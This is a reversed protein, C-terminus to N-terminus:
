KSEIVLKVTREVGLAWENAGGIGTLGIQLPRPLQSTDLVWEFEVYYRSDIDVQSADAIRWGTSRAVADLAEALSAYSQGLGGQSVRWAATLPQYSLRWERVARAVREDRWYWRSRWLSARVAFYLPVGHQAAEEAARPLAARLQYEVAVSDGSRVAALALVEVGQAGAPQALGLWLGFALTAAWRARLLALARTARPGEHRRAAAHSPM